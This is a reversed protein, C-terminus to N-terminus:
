EMTMWDASGKFGGGEMGWICWIFIHVGSVCYLLLVAVYCAPIGPIRALRQLGGQTAVACATSTSCACLAGVSAEAHGAFVEHHEGMGADGPVQGVRAGLIRGRIETTEQWDACVKFEQLVFKSAVAGPAGAVCTPRLPRFKCHSQFPIPM